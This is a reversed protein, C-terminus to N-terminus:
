RSRRLRCTRSNFGLENTLNSCYTSDLNDVFGLNSLFVFAERSTARRLELRAWPGGRIDLSADINHFMRMTSTTMTAISMVKANRRLRLCFWRKPASSAPAHLFYWLSPFARPDNRTAIHFSTLTVKLASKSHHLLILACITTKHQWKIFLSEM